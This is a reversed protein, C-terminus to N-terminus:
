IKSFSVARAECGVRNKLASAKAELYVDAPHQRTTVVSNHWGIMNGPQDYIMWDIFYTAEKRRPTFFIVLGSLASLLSGGKKTTDDNPTKTCEAM